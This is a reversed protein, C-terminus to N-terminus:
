EPPAYAIGLDLSGGVLSQEIARGSTKEIALGVGPYARRLRAVARPDPRHQVLPDGSGCPGEVFDWCTASRRGGPRSRGCPGADPTAVSSTPGGGDAPDFPREQRLPPIGLM